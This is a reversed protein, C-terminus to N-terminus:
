LPYDTSLKSLAPGFFITRVDNRFYRRPKVRALTGTNRACSVDDGEAHEVLDDDHEVGWAGYLADRMVARRGKGAPGGDLESFQVRTNIHEDIRETVLQLM